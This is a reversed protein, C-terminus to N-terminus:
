NNERIRAFCGRITLPPAPSHSPLSVIPNSYRIKFFILIGANKFHSNPSPFFKWFDILRRIIFDYRGTLVIKWLSKNYGLPHTRIELSIFVSNKDNYGGTQPIIISIIDLMKGCLNKPNQDPNFKTLTHLIILITALVSDTNHLLKSDHNNNRSIITVLM